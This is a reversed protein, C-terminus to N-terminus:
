QRRGVAPAHGHAAGIPLAPFVVSPDDFLSSLHGDTTDLLGHDQFAPALRALTLAYFGRKGGPVLPHRRQHTISELGHAALIVPLNSGLEPHAGALTMLRHVATAFELFATATKRDPAQAAAIALTETSVDIAEAFLQGHPALSPILRALVSEPDPLHELVSRAHILDWSGPPLPDTTIDHEIVNVGPHAINRLFRPDTDTAVVRGSEGATSALRRAISGAGAGVELCSWGPAPDVQTLLEETGPDYVQEITRLRDFELDARAASDLVYPTPQPHHPDTM